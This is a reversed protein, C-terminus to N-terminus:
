RQRSCPRLVTGSATPRLVRLFASAGRRPTLALALARRGDHQRYANFVLPLWYWGPHNPNLQTAREALACGAEWDGSFALQLGLFATAYGEM